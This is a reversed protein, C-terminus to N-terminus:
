EGDIEHQSLSDAIKNDISRLYVARVKVNHIMGHLVLKWILVMCNKCGSTKNVMSKMSRNDTHVIITRNPFEHMWALIGATLAFLELYQISPNCNKIFPGWCEQIWHPGCHGGFGLKSNKSADMAFSIDEADTKNSFDAFPHCYAMQNMLFTKWMTLDSKIEKTVRIHFHPKLQEPPLRLPAYLRRTFARGPVIIRGLFNLFGCISQLQHVTIKRQPAKKSDYIDPVFNIMNLGRALKECPILVRRNVTDILFGLFVM